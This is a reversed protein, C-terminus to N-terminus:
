GRWVSESSGGTGNCCPALSSAMPPAVGNSFPSFTSAPPPAAGNSFPAFSSVSPPVGNGFPAFSSMPPAQQQQQQQQRLQQLQTQQQQYQQYQQFQQQQQYQPESQHQQYQPQPQPQKYHQAQLQEYHQASVTHQMSSATHQMSAAVANAAAAAAAAEVAVREVSKKEKPPRGRPRKIAGPVAAPQLQVPEWRYRAAAQAPATAPAAPASTGYPKSYQRAAAIANAAGAVAYAATFVADVRESCSSSLPALTTAGGQQMAQMAQPPPQSLSERPDAVATFTGMVARGMQEQSELGNVFPNPPFLAYQPAAEHRVEHGVSSGIPPCPQMSPQISPQISPQMSPQMSRPPPEYGTWGPHHQPLGMAVAHRAEHAMSSGNPPGMFVGYSGFQHPALPSSPPAQPSGECADSESAVASAVTSPRQTQDGLDAASASAPYKAAPLAQTLHVNAPTAHRAYCMAAEEPTQYTGLEASPLHRLKGTESTQVKCLGRDKSGGKFGTECSSKSSSSLMLGIREAAAFARVEDATLPPPQTSKQSHSHSGMRAHSPAGGQAGAHVENQSHSHSGMRAHSPAGGQAGAHVEGTPSEAHSPAHSRHPAHLHEPRRELSGAHSADAAAAGDVAAGCAFLALMSAAADHVEVREREVSKAQEGGDQAGGDQAGGDHAGGDQAGGLGGGQAGGDHAGGLGGDHAGGLGGDAWTAGYSSAGHQAVRPLAGHQAVRPVAYTAHASPAVSYPLLTVPAYPIPPAACMGMVAGRGPAYAQQPAFTPQMAAYAQQPAAYGQQAPAYTPQMTAYAQQQPAYGQQPPAFAQQPPAYMPQPPPYAPQPPPYAPQPAAYTPQPAPLPATVPALVQSTHALATGLARPTHWQLHNSATPPRAWRSPAPPAPAPPAAAPPPYRILPAGMDRSKTRKLAPLVAGENAGHQAGQERWLALRASEVVGSVVRAEATPVSGYPATDPAFSGGAAGHRAATAADERAQHKRLQQRQRKRQEKARLRQQKRQQKELATELLAAQGDKAAREIRREDASTPAEDGSPDDISGTEDISGSPEDITEDAGRHAIEDVLEGQAEAQGGQRAQELSQYEELVRRANRLLLSGPGKDSLPSTPNTVGKKTTAASATQVLPLPTTTPPGYAAGHLRFRVSVVDEASTLVPAGVQSESSTWKSASAESWDDNLGLRVPVQVTRFSRRAADASAGGSASGTASGTSAQRSLARSAGAPTKGEREYSGGVVVGGTHAAAADTASMSAKKPPLLSSPCRGRGAPAANAGTLEDAPIAGPMAQTSWKKAPENAWGDDLGLRVPGTIKRGTTRRAENADANSSTDANSANDVSSAAPATAEAERTVTEEPSAEQCLKSEDGNSEAEKETRSRKRELFPIACTGAHHETLICGNIGCMFYGGETAPPLGRSPSAM